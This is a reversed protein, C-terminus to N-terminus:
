QVVVSFMLNPGDPQELYGNLTLGSVASTQIFIDDHGNAQILYRPSALGPFTTVPGAGVISGAVTGSNVVVMGCEGPPVLTGDPLSASAASGSAVCSVSGTQISMTAPSMYVGFLGFFYTGLSAAASLTIAILLVEAIIPAIGERRSRRPDSLRTMRPRWSDKKQMWILRADIALVLFPCCPDLRFNLSLAHGNPGFAM